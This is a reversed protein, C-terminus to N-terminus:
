SCYGRSLDPRPDNDYETGGEAKNGTVERIDSLLAFFWLYYVYFYDMFGRSLGVGCSIICEMCLTYYNIYYISLHPGVNAGLKDMLLLGVAPQEVSFLCFANFIRHVAVECIISFLYFGTFLYQHKTFRSIPIPLLFRLLSLPQTRLSVAM